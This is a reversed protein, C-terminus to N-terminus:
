HKDKVRPFTIVPVTAHRIIAEAVSGLALHRFGTRGHTSMAILDVDNQQAYDVV